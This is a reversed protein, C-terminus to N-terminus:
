GYTSHSVEWVVTRVPRYVATWACLHLFEYRNLISYYGAQALKKNSVARQVSAHRASKWYAKRSYAAEREM